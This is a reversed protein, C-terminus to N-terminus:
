RGRATPPPPPVYAPATTGANRECDAVTRGYAFEGSLGRSPVGVYSNGSYPTNTSPSAAYIDARNRQEYMENARQRCAQQTALDSRGGGATGSPGVAYSSPTTSGSSCAALALAAICPVSARFPRSLARVGPVVTFSARSM